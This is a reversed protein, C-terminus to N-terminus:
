KITDNVHWKNAKYYFSFPVGDAGKVLYLATNRENILYVKDTVVLPLVVAPRKVACAALGLLLLALALRHARTKIFTVKM